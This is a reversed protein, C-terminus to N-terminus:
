GKPKDDDYQDAYRLGPPHTVDPDRLAPGKTPDLRHSAVARERELSADTAMSEYADSSRDVMGAPEDRTRTDAPGSPTHRGLLRAFFQRM